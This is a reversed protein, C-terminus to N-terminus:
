FAKAFLCTTLAEHRVFDCIWAHSRIAGISGICGPHSWTPRSDSPPAVITMLVSAM